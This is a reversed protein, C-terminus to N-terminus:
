VEGMVATVSMIFKDDTESVNSYYIAWSEEPETPPQPIVSDPVTAPDLITTTEPLPADVTDSELAIKKQLKSARYAEGGKASTQKCHQKRKSVWPM